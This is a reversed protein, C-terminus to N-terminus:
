IYLLKNYHMFQLEISLGDNRSLKIPYEAQRASFLSIEFTDSVSNVKFYKIPNFLSQSNGIYNTLIDSAFSAKVKCSHRDWVNYFNLTRQYKKYQDPENEFEKNGINLVDMFDTRINNNLYDLAIDVYYKDDDNENRPSFITEVFGNNEYIGDWQVERDTVEKKDHDEYIVFNIGDKHNNNYEQFYYNAIKQFKHFLYRLDEEIPLWHICDFEINAKNEDDISLYIQDDSWNPYLTKLRQYESKLYKRIKIRYKIKRRIMYVWINRVGIIVEGKNATMWEKPYNFIYTNVDNSKKNSDKLLYTAELPIPIPNIPHNIM